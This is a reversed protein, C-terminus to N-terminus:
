GVTDPINLVVAGAEVAARCLEIVYAPATRSADECCFQVEDFVTERLGRHERGSSSKRSRRSRRAPELASAAADVDGETGRAMAAVVPRGLAGAVAHAGAWEGESAAPFGAEVVDVGLRELQLAITM